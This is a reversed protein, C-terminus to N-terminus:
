HDSYERCTLEGRAPFTCLPKTSLDAEQRYIFAQFRAQGTAEATWTSEQASHDRLSGPHVIAREGARTTLRWSTKIDM